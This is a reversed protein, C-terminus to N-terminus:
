TPCIRPCISAAVLAAGAMAGIMIIEMGKEGGIESCRLM